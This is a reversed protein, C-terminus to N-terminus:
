KKVIITKLELCYQCVFIYETETTDIHSYRHRCSLKSTDYDNLNFGSKQIAEKLPINDSMYEEYSKQLKTDDALLKSRTSASKLFLFELISEDEITKVLKDGLWVQGNKYLKWQKEKM